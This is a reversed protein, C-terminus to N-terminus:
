KGLYGSAVAEHIGLVIAWLGGDAAAARPAREPAPPEPALHFDRTVPDLERGEAHPNPQLGPPRAAGSGCVAAAMVVALLLLRTM